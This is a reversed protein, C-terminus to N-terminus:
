PKNIFLFSNGVAIICRVNVVNSSKQCHLIDLPCRNSCLMRILSTAAHNGSLMPKTTDKKKNGLLLWSVTQTPFAAEQKTFTFQTFVEYNKTLEM